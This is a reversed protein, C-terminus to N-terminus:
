RRCTSIWVAPQIGTQQFRGPSVLRYTRPPHCGRSRRAYGCGGFDRRGVQRQIRYPARSGCLHSSKGAHARCCRASRGCRIDSNLREGRWSPRTGDDACGRTDHFTEADRRIRIEEAPVPQCYQCGQQASRFGQSLSNVPCHRKVGCPPRTAKAATYAAKGSMTIEEAQGAKQQVIADDIALGDRQGGTSKM